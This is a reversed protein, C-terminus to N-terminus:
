PPTIAALILVNQNTINQNQIFFVCCNSRQSSSMEAKEQDWVLNDASLLKTVELASQVAEEM